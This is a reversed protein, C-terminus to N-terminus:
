YQCTVQWTQDRSMELVSQTTSLAWSFTTKWRNKRLSVSEFVTAFHSVSSENATEFQSALLVVSECKFPSTLMDYQVCALKCMQVTLASDRQSRARFGMWEKSSIEMMTIVFLKRLHNMRPAIETTVKAKRAFDGTSDNCACSVLDALLRDPVAAGVVRVCRASCVKRAAILASCCNSKLVAM